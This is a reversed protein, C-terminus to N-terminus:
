LDVIRYHALVALAETLDKHVYTVLAFFFFFRFLCCFSGSVKDEQLLIYLLDLQSADILFLAM